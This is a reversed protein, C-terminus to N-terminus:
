TRWTRATRASRPLSTTLNWVPNGYSAGGTQLAELVFACEKAIPKINIPPFEAREPIGAAFEDDVIPTGRPGVERAQEFLVVRVPASHAVKYPELIKAIAEVEYDTETVQEIHVKPPTDTKNNFTDPIRLIRAADVTCQTDCKLNHRRTAEALAFALPSWEQPPLPRVLVWYVHVGGGSHVVMSPSPMGSSALFGTFAKDADQANDYGHEGGKYDIDVFLAKLGVANEKTRHAALYKRGQQSTKEHAERQASMCAYVDRANGKAMAWELTRIAEDLNRCAKGSWVLKEENPKDKDPIKLNWHVNVFAKGDEPWPVVRALYQRAQDLAGNSASCTPPPGPRITM